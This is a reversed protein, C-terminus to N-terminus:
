GDRYFQLAKLHIYNNSDTTSSNWICEGIPLKFLKLRLDSAEQGSIGTFREITREKINGIKFIFKNQIFELLDDQRDYDELSQSALAIGVGFSRSERLIRQLLPNKSKLYNHAEDMVILHRMERFDNAVASDGMSKMENYFMELLLYVVIEKVSRMQSMDIICSEEFISGKTESREARETFMKLDVLQSILATVVDNAEGASTNKLIYRLDPYPVESNRLQNYAEVISTRLKNVQVPGMRPEAISIAESLGSARSQISRDEYDNLVFPSFPLPEETPDYIECGLRDVFRYDSSLDGKYDFILLNMRRQSADHLRTLLSKLFQTKGSGPVGVIAVHQNPTTKTNNFQWKVEKEEDDTGIEVTIESSYGRVPNEIDSIHNASIHKALLSYFEYKDQKAEDFYKGLLEMGAHLHARLYKQLEGQNQSLSLDKKYLWSMLCELFPDKSNNTLSYENLEFGSSDISTDVETGNVKASLSIAILALEFSQIPIVPTIRDRIKEAEVSSKLKGFPM